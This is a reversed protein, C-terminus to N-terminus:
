TPYVTSIEPEKLLDGGAGRNALPQRDIHPSKM